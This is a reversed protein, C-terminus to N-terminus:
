PRINTRHETWQGATVSLETLSLPEIHQALVDYVRGGRARHVQTLIPGLHAIAVLTRGEFRATLADVTASVRAAVMNWSEGDPAELDGPEEWFRRSLLPDRRAVAESALGDWAGFDFERLGAAHPLRTRRGAIAGATSRARLLDSSIVLADSPLMAELRAIAAADSLDAPVDRQGTMVTQHTPGHRVWFWRTM